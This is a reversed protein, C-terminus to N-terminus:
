SGALTAYCGSGGLKASCPNARTRRNINGPLPSFNRMSNVEREGKSNELKMSRPILHDVNYDVAKRGFTLPAFPAGWAGGSHPAPPLLMANFIRKARNQNALELRPKFWAVPLASLLSTSTHSISLDEGAAFLTAFAGDFASNATDRTKGVAGTVVSRYVGCLFPHLDADEASGGPVFFSPTNGTKLFDQYYFGLLCAFPIAGCNGVEAVYLNDSDKTSEVFELFENVESMKLGAGWSPLFKFGEGKEIAALVIAVFPLLSSRPNIGKSMFLDVYDNEFAEIDSAAWGAQEAHDVVHARLLDVPSLEVRVTNIGIFTQMLEVVSAFSHYEDIAIQRDLLLTVVKSGFLGPATHLEKSVLNEIESRLKLYGNRVATRPYRRLFSDNHLYLDRDSHLVREIAAFHSRLHPQACGSGLVERDLVALLATGAAFRQLGDILQLYSTPLSTAPFCRKLAPTLPSFLGMVVNGLLVSESGLFQEFTDEGWSIGRQFTPVDIWKLHHVSFLSSGSPLTTGKPILAYKTLYDAYQPTPGTRGIPTRTSM